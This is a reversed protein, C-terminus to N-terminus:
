YIPLLSRRTSTRSNWLFVPRPFAFVKKLMQTHLPCPDPMKNGLMKQSREYFYGNRFPLDKVVAGFQGVTETYMKMRAYFSDDIQVGTTSHVAATLERMCKQTQEWYPEEVVEGITKFSNAKAVLHVSCTWVLRELRSVEFQEPTLIRCSMQVKRLRKALDPAWRGVACSLGEPNLDTIGDVPNDGLKNIVFYILAQTCDGLKKTELFDGLNGSGMFVLDKRRDAPCAEVLEELASNPVCLYIPGDKGSGGPNKKLQFKMESTSRVIVDSKDGHVKMMQGVRGDGVIIAPVIEASAIQVESQAMQIETAVRELRDEILTLAAKKESLSAQLEQVEAAVSAKLATLEEHNKELRRILTRTADVDSEEQLAGRLRGATPQRLPLFVVLPRMSCGAPRWGAGTGAASPAPRMSAAGPASVFSEVHAARSCLSLGLALLASFRM